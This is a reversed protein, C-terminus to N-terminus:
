YREALLELLDAEQDCLALYDANRPHDTGTYTAPDIGRKTLDAEIIAIVKAQASRTRDLLYLAQGGSLHALHALHRPTQTKTM